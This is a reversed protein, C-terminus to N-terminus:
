EGLGKGNRIKLLLGQADNQGKAQIGGILWVANGIVKVRGFVANGDPYQISEWKKQQYHMILGNRGAAWVEGSDLCSVDNLEAGTITVHSTRLADSEITAEVIGADGGSDM